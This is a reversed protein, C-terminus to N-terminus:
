HMEGIACNHVLHMNRVQIVTLNRGQTTQKGLNYLRSTNPFRNNLEKLTSQLAEYNHYGTLSVEAFASSPLLLFLQLLVALSLVM